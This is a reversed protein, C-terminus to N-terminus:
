RTCKSISNDSESRVVLKTESIEIIESSESINEPFIKELSFEDDLGPHSLNVIKVDDATMVLYKGQVEWDGTASISYVFEEGPVQPVSFTLEGFSNARGNRIYTDETVLKFTGADSIDTFECEWKGYLKEETTVGQAAHSACGVFLLVSSLTLLKTLKM